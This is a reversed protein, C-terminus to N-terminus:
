GQTLIANSHHQGLHGGQTYLPELTPMVRNKVTPNNMTLFFLNLNYPLPGLTQWRRHRTGLALHQFLVM